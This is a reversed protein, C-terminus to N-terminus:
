FQMDEMAAKGEITVGFDKDYAKEKLCYISGDYVTEILGESGLAQLEHDYLNVTYQQALKMLQNFIRFDDIRESLEAIIEEGANYPVIVSSTPSEIAEFHRELTKFMGLSKTKPRRSKPVTGDLLHYLPHDFKKPATRIEREAQAGFYEFYREITEPALLNDAYPSRSLIYNETVEGGIRIEPLKSLNEDQARIIYVDGIDAEKNRNCRGAAQAISDLGALSRIVSEFSIDVGAEILQTSICIIKEKGLKEKINNLSKKRHAPCMSTSLHVITHEVSEQMLEYLKRVATKTNLIILLSDKKQLIEKAFEGIREADWGAPELLNYFEVRKFATVVKNLDSVIEPKEDLIVKPNEKNLAPQTATCLVISSNGIKQLFNISANFLGKHQYPVSQVEDFIIVSNTLNHLRRSKRTGKQYFADLFQVMTTFIIPYDWNDRGLQLQKHYKSDYYDMGDDLKQDDIVNAHHELVATPQKIKERVAQANQELITTYPVVYIIRSKKHVIAHKLAYRLSAITKGGGTPVTLQYTSSSKEGYLDCGKSMKNRLVNIPDNSQEWRAIAEMLTNYSQEFLDM